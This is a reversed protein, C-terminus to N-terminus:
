QSVEVGSDRIEMICDAHLIIQMGVAYREEESSKHTFSISINDGAMTNHGTFGAEIIKETDTAWVFKITRYEHPTIDFNFSKNSNIGMTKMLQSFSEAHSRIPYVPFQKSGIQIQAEFEDLEDHKLDGSNSGASTVFMPSYFYNWDRAIVELSNVYLAPIPPAILTVFISKLRSLSRNVNLRIAKQGINAASIMSQLQSIYTNYNIALSKGSLLYQAYSNDLANDLTCVDCKLQVNEIQWNVSTTASPFNTGVKIIPDTMNDVLELEITIPAYRLPIFKKQKLLGSLPTFLVTQAKSPNIGTYTVSTMNTTIPNPLGHDYTKGFGEMDENIRYDKPSLISFLESVRNFNDIDEVIAGNVLIRMRRFFSYPNGLPRLIPTAVPDLVISAMNRLDFMVRVTSPDLWNDGTLNIKVLKTGGAPRYINSGAPHYTVSQRDIVYSAGPRMKFSLGDILYDEISNAIAEVM